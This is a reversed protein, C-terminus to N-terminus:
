HGLWQLPLEGGVGIFGDVGLRGHRLHQFRIGLHYGPIGGIIGLRMRGLRLNDDFLFNIGDISGGVGVDNNQLHVYGFSNQGLGTGLDLQPTRNTGLTLAGEINDYAGGITVRGNRFQQLVDHGMHPGFNIGTLFHDQNGQLYVRWDEGRTRWFAGTTAVDATLGFATRGDESEGAISVLPIGAPPMGLRPLGVQPLRVQPGGALPLGVTSALGLPTRPIVGPALGPNLGPWLGSFPTQDITLGSHTTRFRWVAGSSDQVELLGPAERVRFNLGLGPFNVAGELQHNGTGFSILNGQQDTLSFTGTTPDKRVTATLGSYTGTVETWNGSTLHEYQLSAGTNPINLGVLTEAPTRQMDLVDTVHLTSSTPSIEFSADNGFSGGLTRGTRYLSFADLVLAQHGPSYEISNGNGLDMSYTSGTRTVGCQSLLDDEFSHVTSVAQQRLARGEQRLEQGAQRLTQTGQRMTDQAETVLSQGAAQLNPLPGGSEGENKVDGM